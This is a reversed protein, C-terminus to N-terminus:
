VDKETYPLEYLEEFCELEEDTEPIAPILGTCETSSVVTEYLEEDEDRKPPHPVNKRNPM